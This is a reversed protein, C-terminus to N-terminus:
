VWSSHWEKRCHILYTSTGFYIYTYHSRPNGRKRARLCHFRARERASISIDIRLKAASARQLKPRIEESQMASRIHQRCETHINYM